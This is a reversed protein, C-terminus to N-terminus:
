GPGRGGFWVSLFIAVYFSFFTPNGSVRRILMTLVLAAAFAAIALVFGAIISSTTRSGQDARDDHLIAWEM